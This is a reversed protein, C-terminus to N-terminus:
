SVAIFPKVVLPPQQYVFCMIRMRYDSWLFCNHLSKDDDAVLASSKRSEHTWQFTYVLFGSVFSDFILVWVPNQPCASSTSGLISAKKFFFLYNSLSPSYGWHELVKPGKFYDQSEEESEETGRCRARFGFYSFVIYLILLLPDFWLLRQQNLGYNNQFKITAFNKGGKVTYWVFSDWVLDRDCFAANVAWMNKRRQCKAETTDKNFKQQCNHTQLEREQSDNQM